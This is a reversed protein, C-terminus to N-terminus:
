DISEPRNHYFEAWEVMKYVDGSEIDRELEYLYQREDETWQM